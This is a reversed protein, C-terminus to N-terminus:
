SVLVLFCANALESVSKRGLRTLRQRRAHLILSRLEEL